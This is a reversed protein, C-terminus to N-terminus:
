LLNSCSGHRIYLAGPPLAVMVASHLTARCAVTGLCALWRVQICCCILSMIYSHMVLAAYLTSGMSGVYGACIIHQM